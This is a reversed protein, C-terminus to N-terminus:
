LDHGSAWLDTFRDTQKTTLQIEQHFLFAAIAILLMVSFFLFTTIHTLDIRTITAVFILIVVLATGVMGLTLLQIARLTIHMRNKMIKLEYRIRDHNEDGCQIMKTATAQYRDIVRTLRGALITMFSNIGVLLFVPTVSLKIANVLSETPPHNMDQPPSSWGSYTGLQIKVTM